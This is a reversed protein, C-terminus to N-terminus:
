YPPTLSEAPGARRPGERLATILRELSRVYIEEQQWDKFDVTYQQRLAVCLQDQRTSLAGDTVLTIITKGFTAISGQRQAIQELFRWGYLSSLAHESCILAMQDCYTLRQMSPLLEDTLLANEDDVSWPWCNLGAAALDMQLRNVFKADKVSSVLLIRSYNAPSLRLQEQFVILPEAVGARRLFAEPILGRSRALTDLGIISPGTHRVSELCLVQSLDCDAFLTMELMANSLLTRDLMVRILSAGRLDADTLNAVDLITGTLRAHGLGAGTLDALSLNAGTLNANSLNAKSLNAFSLDAFSLAAGRLDAGELNSGSLNARVLSAGKLNTGRLNAWSLNSRSLHASQLNAGSLNARRLDASTLDVGSLYDHSLDVDPLRAGSLYARSLDLRARSRWHQERWRAVAHSRQKALAVHEPNAL